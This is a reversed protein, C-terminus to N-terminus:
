PFFVGWLPAMGLYVVILKRGGGEVDRNFRFDHDKFRRVSFGQEGLPGSLREILRDALTEKTFFVKREILDRDYTVRYVNAREPVAIGQAPIYINQAADYIDLHLKRALPFLLKLFDGMRKPDHCEPQWLAYKWNKLEAEPDNM